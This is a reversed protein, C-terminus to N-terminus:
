DRGYSVEPILANFGQIQNELIRAMENDEKLEVKGYLHELFAKPDEHCFTEYYRKTEESSVKLLVSNPLAGPKLKLTKEYHGLSM